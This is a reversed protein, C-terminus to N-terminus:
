FFSPIPHHLRVSNCEFYRKTTSITAQASVMKTVHDDPLHVEQENADLDFVHLQLDQPALRGARRRLQEVLRLGDGLILYHIARGDFTCYCRYSSLVENM